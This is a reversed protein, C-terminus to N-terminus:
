KMIQSLDPPTFTLYCKNIEGGNLDIYNDMRIGGTMVDSAVLTYRFTLKNTGSGGRYDAYALNSTGFTTTSISRLLLRPTGTVTVTTPFVIDFYLHEGTIYTRNLPPIVQLLSQQNLPLYNFTWNNNGYVVIDDFTATADKKVFNTLTTIQAFSSDVYANNLEDSDTSGSNLRSATGSSGVLPIYAGHGDNGHSTLAAISTVANGNDTITIKGTLSNTSQCTTANTDVAYTILRNYGDLAYDSSIGLTKFPIAGIAINNTSDRFNAAPTGGGCNNTTGANAAMVGYNNAGTALSADAPCPIVGNAIQYQRIANLVFNLKEASVADAKLQTQQSPLYSVMLLAAITLMISIQILTFGDQKTIGCKNRYGHQLKSYFKIFPYQVLHPIVFNSLKKKM